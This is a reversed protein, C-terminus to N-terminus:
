RQSSTFRGDFPPVTRREAQSAHTPKVLHFHFPDVQESLQDHLIRNGTTQLRVPIGVEFCNPRRRIRLIGKVSSQVSAPVLADQEGWLTRLASRPAHFLLTPTTTRNYFCDTRSFAFMSRYRIWGWRGSRAARPLGSPESNASLWVGIAAPNRWCRSQMISPRKRELTLRPPRYPSRNAKKMHISGGRRRRALMSSAEDM